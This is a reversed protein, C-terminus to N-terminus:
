EEREDPKYESKGGNLWHVRWAADDPHSHDSEPVFKGTPDYYGVTWLQPESQKYVYVSPTQEKALAKMAAFVREVSSPTMHDYDRAGDEGRHIFCYFEWYGSHEIVHLSICDIKKKM